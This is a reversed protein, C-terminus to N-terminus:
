HVVNTPLQDIAPGRFSKKGCCECREDPLLGNIDYIKANFQTAIEDVIDLVDEPEELKHNITYIYMFFLKDYSVEDIYAALRIEEIINNGHYSVYLVPNITKGHESLKLMKDKALAIEHELHIKNNLQYAIKPVEWVKLLQPYACVETVDPLMGYGILEKYVSQKIHETYKENQKERYFLKEEIDTVENIDAIVVGCLVRQIVYLADSNSESFECPRKYENTLPFISPSLKSMFVSIGKLYNHVSSEKQWEIHDSHYFIADHLVTAGNGIGYSRRIVKADVMHEVTKPLSTPLLKVNEKTTTVMILTAFPIVIFQNYGGSEDKSIIYLNYGVDNLVFLITDFAIDSLDERDLLEHVYGELGREIFWEILIFIEGPIDDTDPNISEALSCIREIKEKRQLEKEQKKHKKSM